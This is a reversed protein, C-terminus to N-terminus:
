PLAKVLKQAIAQTHIEVSSNKWDEAQSDFLQFSLSILNLFKEGDGCKSLYSRLVSKMNSDM